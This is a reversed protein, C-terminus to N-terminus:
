LESIWNNLSQKYKSIDFNDECVKYSALKLKQKDQHSLKAFENLKNALVSELFDNAILANEKDKFFYPIEGIDTTIVIGSCATYECIKNPFRANDQVNNRLPILLAEASKLNMILETYPLNKKIIIKEDKPLSDIQAQSGSLVLVLKYDRQPLVSSTFASIILQIVDYYAVSGCFLIYPYTSKLAEIKDYFSIDCVPPIKITKISKSRSIVMKEIYHSICIAGDFLKSGFKDCLWGNISHYFSDRNHSSRMEVYQYLLKADIIRSILYYYLFIFYHGSYLHLIHIKNKKNECILYYFEIFFSIISIIIIQIKKHKIHPNFLEIINYKDGTNTNTHMSPYRNLINVNCGIDNFLKAFSQLRLDCARKAYPVGGLGVFFINM